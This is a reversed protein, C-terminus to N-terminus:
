KAASSAAAAAGRVARAWAVARTPKPHQFIRRTSARPASRSAGPTSGERSLWTSRKSARNARPWRKPVSTSAATVARRCPAARRSGSCRSTTGAATSCPSIPRSRPVSRAAASACVATSCAARATWGRRSTSRACRPMSMSGRRWRARRRSGAKASRFIPMSACRKATPMSARGAASASTACRALTARQAGRALDVDLEAAWADLTGGLTADGGAVVRADGDGWALSEARAVLAMAADDLGYTGTLDVRGELLALAVPEAHLTGDHVRVRSDRLAVAIGDQAVRGELAVRLGPTATDGGVDSRAELVADIPAQAALGLTATDLQAADLALTWALTDLRAVDRWDFALSLPGGATGELTARGKALAGDVRLAARAGAALEADLAIRTAFDEAPAYALEGRLRGEPADIELADIALRGPQLAVAGAIRRIVLPAPAAANSADTGGETSPSSQVAIDRVELADIRAALPIALTPLVGPWPPTPEEPADKLRVRVGRVRLAALNVTPRNVGPFRPTAQLVDIEVRMSEDEFVVDRLRLGGAVSGERDGIRLAGDPLAAIVQRLALDRGGQSGLLWWGGLALAALLAAGILLAWRLLRRAAM